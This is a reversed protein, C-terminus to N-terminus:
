WAPRSVSKQVSAPSRQSQRLRVTYRGPDGCSFRVTRQVHSQDFHGLITATQGADILKQLADEEIGAMRGLVTLAAEAHGINRWRAMELLPDLAEARLQTLMRADRTTTLAVLVLSAKNHDSWAGSRMLRM